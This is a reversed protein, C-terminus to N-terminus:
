NMRGAGSGRAIFRAKEGDEFSANKIEKM